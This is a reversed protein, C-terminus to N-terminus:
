STENDGFGHLLYVTPYSKNEKNYSAPLYVSYRLPRNLTQSHYDISGTFRVFPDEDVPIVPKCDMFYGTGIVILVKM